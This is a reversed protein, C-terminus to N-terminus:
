SARKRRSAIGLLVSSGAIGILPAGIMAAKARRRLGRLKGLDAARSWMLWRKIRGTQPAPGDYLEAIPDAEIADDIAERSKRYTLASDLAVLSWLAIWPVLAAKAVSQVVGPSDVVCDETRAMKNSLAQKRMGAIM